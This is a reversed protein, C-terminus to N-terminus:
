YLSKLFHDMVFFFFVRLLLLRLFFFFWSYPFSSTGPSPSPFLLWPTLPFGHRGVCPKEEPLDFDDPFNHLRTFEKHLLAFPSYNPDLNSFVFCM